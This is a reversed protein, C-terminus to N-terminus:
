PTLFECGTKQTALKMDLTALPATVIEAVAVYAADYATISPRLSWIREALNATAVLRISLRLLETVAYDAHGETIKKQLALRRLVNLTEVVLCDPAYLRSGLLTNTSWSGFEESETLMAIIVSADAVLKM